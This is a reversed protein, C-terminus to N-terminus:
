QVCVLLVLAAISLAQIITKPVSQHLASIDVCLMTSINDSILSAISIRDDINSHIQVLVTSLVYVTDISDISDVYISRELYLGTNISIRVPVSQFLERIDGTNEISLSLRIAKNHEM